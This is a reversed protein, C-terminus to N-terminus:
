FLKEQHLVFYEKPYYRTTLSNFITESPKTVRVRGNNIDYATFIYKKGEHMLQDIKRNFHNYKPDIELVVDWLTEKAKSTETSKKNIRSLKQLNPHVIITDGVKFNISENNKVAYDIAKQQRTQLEAKEKEYAERDWYMESLYHGM